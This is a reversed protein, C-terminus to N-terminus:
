YFSREWTTEAAVFMVNWDYQAFFGRTKSRDSCPLLEQRLNSTKTIATSHCFVFVQAMPIISFRSTKRTQIKDLNSWVYNACKCLKNWVLSKIKATVVNSPFMLGEMKVPLICAWRCAKWFYYYHTHLLSSPNLHTRTHTRMHTHICLYLCMHVYIYYIHVKTICIYIYM